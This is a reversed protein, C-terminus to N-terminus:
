NKKFKKMCSWRRIHVELLILSMPIVVLSLNSWIGMWCVLKLLLIPTIINLYETHFNVKNKDM